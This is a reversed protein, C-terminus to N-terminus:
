EYLACSFFCKHGIAQFTQNHEILNIIDEDDELSERYHDSSNAKHKSNDDNMKSAQMITDSTKIEQLFDAKSLEQLLKNSKSQEDSEIEPSAATINNFYSSTCIVSKSTKNRAPYTSCHLDRFDKLLSDKKRKEEPQRSNINETVEEMLESKEADDDQFQKRTLSNGFLPM